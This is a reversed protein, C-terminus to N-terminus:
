RAIEMNLRQGRGTALIWDAHGLTGIQFLRPLQTLDLRFRFDVNHRADPDLDQPDAIKWRSIRQLATMADALRDFTQGMTMGQSTNVPANAVAQLRWRRTLPLYTLRLHRVASAIKKDYWYWRDRYVEAEAVFVLPIGKLVVDEVVAPLEFQLSASLFVGDEQREVSFQTIEAQQALGTGSAFFLGLCILWSWARSM